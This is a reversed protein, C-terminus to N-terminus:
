AEVPDATEVWNGQQPKCPRNCSHHGHCSRRLPSRVRLHHCIRHRSPLTKWLCKSAQVRSCQSRCECEMAMVELAVLTAEEVRGMGVVAGEEAAALRVAKGDSESVAVTAADM